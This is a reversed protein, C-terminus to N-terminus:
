KTEAIKEARRELEAMITEPEIGQEVMLVTLHYILDSIEYCFKIKSNVKIM